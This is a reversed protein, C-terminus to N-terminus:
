GETLELRKSSIKFFHHAKTEINGTPSGPFGYLKGILFSITAQHDSPTKTTSAFCFDQLRIVAFKAKSKPFSNNVEGQSIKRGFEDQHLSKSANDEAFITKFASSIKSSNLM